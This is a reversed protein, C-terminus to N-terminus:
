LSLLVRVVVFVVLERRLPQPIEYLFSEYRISFDVFSADRFHPWAIQTAINLAMEKSADPAPAL